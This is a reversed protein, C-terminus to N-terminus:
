RLSPIYMEQTEEAMGNMVQYASILDNLEGIPMVSYEKFNLGALRSWLDIYM